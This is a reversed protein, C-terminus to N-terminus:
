DRIVKFINLHRDILDKISVDKEHTADCAVSFDLDKFISFRKINSNPFEMLNIFLGWSQGNMLNIEKLKLNELVCYSEKLNEIEIISKTSIDDDNFVVLKSNSEILLDQNLEISISFAPFSLFILLLVSRM